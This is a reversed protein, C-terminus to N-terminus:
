IVSSLGFERMHLFFFFFFNLNKALDLSFLDSVLCKLEEGTFDINSSLFHKLHLQQYLSDKILCFKVDGFNQLLPCARVPMKYLLPNQWVKTGVQPFYISPRWQFTVGQANEEVKQLM